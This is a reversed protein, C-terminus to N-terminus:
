TAAFFLTVLTRLWQTRNRIAAAVITTTMPNENDIDAQEAVPVMAAQVLVVPSRTLDDSGIEELSTGLVVSGGLWSLSAPSPRM